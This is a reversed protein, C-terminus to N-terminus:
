EGGQLKVSVEGSYLTHLLGADDRVLLHGDDDIGVAVAEYSEGSGAMTKYVTVRKGLVISRERYEALYGRASLLEGIKRMRNMVAAILQCRLFEPIQEPSLSDCLAGAVGKSVGPFGGEPARVNIGIGVIFYDFNGSEFDMTGETLIGCVKKDGVFLDNVWKIGCEIGLVERIAQAVAVSTFVTILGSDTVSVPIDYALSLYIGSGKPSVFERNMRGRGTTQCEATVAYNGRKGGAALRKAYLNTSDVEPLVTVSEWFDGELRSIIQGEDLLDPCSILRYGRNSVAELKYGDEKLASIAKWVATRSVALQGAIEEGSLYGDKALLLSLVKQKTTQEM